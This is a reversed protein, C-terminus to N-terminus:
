THLSQSSAERRKIGARECTNLEVFIGGELKSDLVLILRVVLLFSKFPRSDAKSTRNAHKERIMVSNCCKLDKGVCSICGSCFSSKRRRGLLFKWRGRV